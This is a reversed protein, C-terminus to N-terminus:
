GDPEPGPENTEDAEPPAAENAPIRAAPRAALRYGIGWETILYEPEGPDDELKKRLYNIYLRLSHLSGTTDSSSLMTALFGHPAVQGVRSALADLLRYETRTLHVPEGGKTVSRMTRDIVLDGTTVLSATEVETHARTRRRLGARLRAGLEVQEIAYPVVDDAGAELIAVVEAPGSVNGMALILIDVGARLTRILEIASVEALQLDVIVADPQADFASRITEAATSAGIVAFGIQALDRAISLNVAPDATGLVVLM